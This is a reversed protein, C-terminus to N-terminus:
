PPPYRLLWPPLLCFVTFCMCCLPVSAGVYGWIEDDGRWVTVRPALGMTRPRSCHYFRRRPAPRCGLRRRQRPLANYTLRPLHSTRLNSPPLLPPQSQTSAPPTSPLPPLIVLPPLIFLPPSLPSPSCPCFFLSFKGPPFLGEIGSSSFGDSFLAYIIMLAAINLVAFAIITHLNSRRRSPPSLSELFPETDSIDSDSASTSALEGTSLNSYTPKESSRATPNRRIRLIKWLIPPNQFPNM